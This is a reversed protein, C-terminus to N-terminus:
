QLSQFDRVRFFNDGGIIPELSITSTSVYEPFHYEANYTVKVSTNTNRFTEYLSEIWDFVAPITGKTTRIRDYEAARSEDSWWNMTHCTSKVDTTEGDMVTIRFSPSPSGGRFQSIEFTYSTIGQAEWAAWARDFAGRDFSLSLVCGSLLLFYPLVCITVTITIKKM